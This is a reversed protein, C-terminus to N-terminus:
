FAGHLSQGLIYRYYLILFPMYLSFRFVSVKALEDGIGTLKEVYGCVLAFCQSSTMSAVGDSIDRPDTVGKPNSLKAASHGAEEAMVCVDELALKGEDPQDTSTGAIDVGGGPNRPVQSAEASASKILQLHVVLSGYKGAKNSGHKQLVRQEEVSPSFTLFELSFINSAVILMTLFTGVVDCNRALVDTIVFSAEGVLTATSRLSPRRYISIKVTSSPQVDSRM